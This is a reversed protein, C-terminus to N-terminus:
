GGGLLSGRLVFLEAEFIVNVKEVRAVGDIEGHILEILNL